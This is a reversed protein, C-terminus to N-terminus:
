GSGPRRLRPSLLVALRYDGLSGVLPVFEVSQLLVDRAPDVFIQKTVRYRDHICTNHIEYAPVGPAAFRTDTLCDRKEESFFGEPGTIVLELDRIAAQDLRPHYIETVIGPQAYVVAPFRGVPAASGM